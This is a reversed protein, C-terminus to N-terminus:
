KRYREPQLAMSPFFNCAEQYSMKNGFRRVWQPDRDAGIYAAFDNAQGEVLIITIDTRRMPSRPGPVSMTVTALIKSDVVGV